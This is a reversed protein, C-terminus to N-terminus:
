RRTIPNVLNKRGQALPYSCLTETLYAELTTILFHFSPSVNDKNSRDEKHSGTKSSTKHNSKGMNIALAQTNNTSKNRSLRQFHKQIITSQDCTPSGVCKFATMKYM